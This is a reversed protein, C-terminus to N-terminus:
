HRVAVAVATASAGEAVQHVCNKVLQVRVRAPFDGGLGTGLDSTRPVLVSAV